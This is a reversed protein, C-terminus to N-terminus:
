SSPSRRRSTRGCRRRRSRRSWHLRRLQRRPDPHQGRDRGAPQELHQQLRQRDAQDDVAAGHGARHHRAHRRVPRPHRLEVRGRQGVGSRHRVPGPRLGGPDRVQHQQAARQGVPWRGDHPQQVQVGARQAREPVGHGPPAEDQLPGGPLPLVLGPTGVTATNGGITGPPYLNDLVSVNPDAVSDTRIDQGPNMSENYTRWTMGAATLANFLNPRNVINHNAKNQTCTPRSRRARWGRSIPATAASPGAPRERGDRRLEVALRRRHRLRRSRGAGHLQARQPQRDRLLQERHQRRAPLRQDQARLAIGAGGADVQERADRHLHPRLAPHRRRQVRGARGPPLHDARPERADDGDGPTVGALGTLEPDGGPVALADPYLDGRDLKTVAYSFRGALVVEERLLATKDTASAVTNVDALVNAGAVGLRTALNAKETAYDTGNAEMQRVVETSAASIVVNAGQETLQAGATRFVNRSANAAGSATNVAGTGIDAIVPAGNTTFLSFHGSADTTASRKAPTANATTM